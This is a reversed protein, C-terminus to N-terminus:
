YIYFGELRFYVSYLNTTKLVAPTVDLKNDPNTRM